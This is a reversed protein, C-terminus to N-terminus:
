ANRKRARETAPEDREANNSIGDAARASDDPM